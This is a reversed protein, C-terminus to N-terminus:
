AVNRVPLHHEDISQACMARVCVSLHNLQKPGFDKPAVLDDLVVAAGVIAYDVQPHGAPTVFDLHVAFVVLAVNPDQSPKNLWM